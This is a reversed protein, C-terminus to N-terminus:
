LWCCCCCCRGGNKSARCVSARLCVKINEIQKLRVATNDLQLVDVAPQDKLRYKNVAVVVDQGSDV